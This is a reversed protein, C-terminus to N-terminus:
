QTEMGVVADAIAQDFSAGGTPSDRLIAPTIGQAMIEQAIMAKRGEITTEGRREAETAQAVEAAVQEYEAKWTEVAGDLGFRGTLYRWTYDINSGIIAEHDGDNLHFGRQGLVLDMAEAHLPESDTIVGDMDFIVAQVRM